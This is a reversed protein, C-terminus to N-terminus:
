QLDALPPVDDPPTKCFSNLSKPLVIYPIAQSPLEPFEDKYESDIERSNHYQLPISFNFDPSKNEDISEGFPRLKSFVTTSKGFSQSQNKM